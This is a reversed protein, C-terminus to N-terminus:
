PINGFDLAEVVLFQTLKSLIAFLYLLIPCLPSKSCFCTHGLQAKCLNSALLLPKNHINSKLAVCENTLELKIAHNLHMSIFALGMLTWNDCFVVVDIFLNTNPVIKSHPLAFNAFFKM